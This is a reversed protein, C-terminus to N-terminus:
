DPPHGPRTMGPGPAYTIVRIQDVYADTKFRVTITRRDPFVIIMDEGRGLDPDRLSTTPYETSASGLVADSDNLETYNTIVGIIYSDFTVIAEFWIQQTGVTDSHLFHSNVPTGAPILSPTLDTTQDFFGSSSINVSIDRDLIFQQVEDFARIADSSEYDGPIVSPPPGVAVIDWTTRVIGAELKPVVFVSMICSFIVALKKM